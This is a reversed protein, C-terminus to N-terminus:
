LGSALGSLAFDGTAAAERELIGLGVTGEFGVGQCGGFGGRVCFGKLFEKRLGLRQLLLRLGCSDREGREFLRVIASHCGPSSAM